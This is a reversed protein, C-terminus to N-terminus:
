DTMHWHQKCLRKRQKGWHRSRPDNVACEAAAPMCAGQKIEGRRIPLYEREIGVRIRNCAALLQSGLEAIPQDQPM